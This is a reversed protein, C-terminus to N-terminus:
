RNVEIVPVRDTYYRQKKGGEFAFNQALVRRITKRSEVIACWEWVIPTSIKMEPFLFKLENVSRIVGKDIAEEYECLVCAFTRTNKKSMFKRCAPCLIGKQLQKYSYYTEREYPSTPLHKKLLHEAFQEHQKHLSSPAQNVQHLFRKLQSPLIIPMNIPAQLLTFEPNIFVLYEKIPIHIKLKKMLSQLLTKCRNLQHLPNLIEQNTSLMRFSESEYVFEGEYNKIEFLMIERESILLTDMQFISHNHELCIDHLLYFNSQLSKTLHDFQQEGALGKLLNSFRQADEKSLTMRSHLLHLLELENATTRTKLVIAM